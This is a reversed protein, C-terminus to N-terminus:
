KTETPQANCLDPIKELGVLTQAVTFSDYEIQVKRMVGNEHFIVNMEYDATEENKALPFFAMSVAHGKAKLLDADIANSPNDTAEPTYPPAQKGFIANVQTAGDLESGDFLTTRMIKQGKNIASLAQLTHQTPFVAQPALNTTKDIPMTYIVTGTDQDARGRVQQSLSNNTYRRSSFDLLKGDKSEYTSFSTKMEIPREEAYDYRVDFNHSSLSANCEKQWEFVLKGRVNVIQSGPHTSLLTVDYTARHSQLQDWFHQNDATSAPKNMANTVSRLGGQGVVLIGLAAVLAVIFIIWEKRM